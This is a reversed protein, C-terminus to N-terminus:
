WISHNKQFWAACAANAEERGSDQISFKVLPNFDAADSAKSMKANANLWIGIDNKELWGSLWYDDVTWLLDPISFVDSLFFEPRVMVGGYGEAIDVYGSSAWPHPKYLGLTAARLSRYSRGKYIRKARPLRDHQENRLPGIDHGAEVIACNPRLRRQELFRTTWLPDYIRDDDCFLIETSTERLEQVAPLVKTAPGYDFEARKITIGDPLKPLAGDWDPFRRYSYPIYVRIERAAQVQSILSRLTKEMKGFRSPISSLSIIM